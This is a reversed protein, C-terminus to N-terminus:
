PSRSPCGHSGQWAAIEDVPSKNTGKRWADLYSWPWIVGRQVWWDGVRACPPSIGFHLHCASANGTKGVKGLEQGASVREGPRVAPDISAFHSGYYRVGDDGLVSVSLGGRTAGDNVAADYTDTAVVDLVVGDTVAVVANGCASMIDTAPYDHHERSYSANGKVPFVRRLSAPDATPTATAAATPSATDSPTGSASSTLPAQWAAAGPTPRASTVVLGVGATATLAALVVAIWLWPRRSSRHRTSWDYPDVDRRAM